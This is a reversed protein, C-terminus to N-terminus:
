NENLELKLWTIKKFRFCALGFVSLFALLIWGVIILLDTGFIMINTFPLNQYVWEHAFNNPTEGILSVILTSFIMSLIIKWIYNKFLRSMLYYFINFVETLVLLPMPYGIILVNFLYGVLSIEPFYWFKFTFFGIFEIISGFIFFTIYIKLFDKKSARLTTKNNLLNNVSAFFVYAPIIFITFWFRFEYIIAFYIGIFSFIFSFIIIFSKLKKMFYYENEKKNFRLIDIM